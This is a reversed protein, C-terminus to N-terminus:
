LSTRLVRFPETHQQKLVSQQRVSPRDWCVVCCRIKGHVTVTRAHLKRLHKGAQWEFSTCALQSRREQGSCSLGRKSSGRCVNAQPAHFTNFCHNSSWCPAQCLGHESYRAPDPSDNRHQTLSCPVRSTGRCCLFAVGCTLRPLTAHLLGAHCCADSEQMNWTKRAGRLSMVLM